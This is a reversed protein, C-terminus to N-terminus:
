NNEVVVAREKREMLIKMNRIFKERIRPDAYKEAMAIKKVDPEYYYLNKGKQRNMRHSIYRETLKYLEISNPNWNGSNYTEMIQDLLEGELPNESQRYNWLLFENLSGLEIETKLYNEFSENELEGTFDLEALVSDRQSSVLEWAKEADMQLPDRNPDRLDKKWDINKYYKRLLNHRDDMYTVEDEEKNWHSIKYNTGQEVYFLPDFGFFKECFSYYYHDPRDRLVMYTAPPNNFKGITLLEPEDVELNFTFSGDPDIVTSDIMYEELYDFHSYKKLYVTQGALTKSNGTIITKSSRDSCSWLFLIAVLSLLKKM